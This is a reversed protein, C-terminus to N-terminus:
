SNAAIKTDAGQMGASLLATVDSVRMPRGTLYGQSIIGEFRSLLLLQEETEVGEAVVQAGLNFALEVIARVIAESSKDDVMDRIFSQDIKIEDFSLDKLQKLSAYGTGFDDLSVIIGRERLDAILTVVEDAGRGVVCDENIEFVFNDFPLGHDVIIGLLEEIHDRRRLEVPHINVAITGPDLGMSKWRALDAAAKLMVARGIDLVLGRDEAIPFFAGPSIAGLEAHHWRSLAEHGVVRGTMPDIKPQYFLELDGNSLAARLESEIRDAWDMSARMTKDYRAFRGRGDDKARFLAMDANAMLAEASDGDGPYMSIGISAGPYMQIDSIKVPTNLSEVIRDALAAADTEDIDGTMIVAFEDGGLRAVLDKAPVVSRLRDGVHKLLQDGAGHGASDNVNKFRDLDLMMVAVCGGGDRADELATELRGQFNRRNPLGTLADRMAILTIEKRARNARELAASLAKTREEIRLELNGNASILQQRYRWERAVYKNILDALRGMEDKSTWEIKVPNRQRRTADIARMMASLPLGIARRYALHVAVILGGVLVLIIIPLRLLRSEIAIRIPADTVRTKLYGLRTIGSADGFTIPESYEFRDSSAQGAEGVSAIILGNPTTVSAKAFSPEAVITALLRRIMRVDGGRVPDALLLAHSFSVKKQTLSLKRYESEYHANEIVLFMASVIMTILPIAVTLFKIKVPVRRWFAIPSRLSRLSRLTQCPRKAPEFTKQDTEDVPVINVDSSM